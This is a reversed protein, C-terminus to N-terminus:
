NPMTRAHTHCIHIYTRAHTCVHAYTVRHELVIKEYREHARHYDPRVSDHSCDAYDLIYIRNSDYHRFIEM